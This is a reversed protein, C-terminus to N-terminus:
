NKLTKSTSILPIKRTLAVFALMTASISVVTLGFDNTQLNDKCFSSLHFITFNYLRSRKSSRQYNNSTSKKACIPCWCCRVDCREVVLRGCIRRCITGLELECLRIRRCADVLLAFSSSSSSANFGNTTPRSFRNPACTIGGSM